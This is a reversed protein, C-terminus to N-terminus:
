SFNNIVIKSSLGLSDYSTENAALFLIINTSKLFRHPNIWLCFSFGNINPTEEVNEMKQVMMPISSDSDDNEQESTLILKTVM